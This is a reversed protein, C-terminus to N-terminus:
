ASPALIARFEPGNEGHNFFPVDRPAHIDDLMTAVEALVLETIFPLPLNRAENLAVWQLASLEGSAQSFDDADGALDEASAIFFRADFRRPRGPPTVARFFFHLRDVAPVYGARYFTSWDEPVSAPKTHSHGLMLGTEEWLERIAANALATPAAGNGHESLQNQALPKMPPCDPLDADTPDVAGGPFVFKSAM